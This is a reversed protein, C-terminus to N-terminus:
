LGLTLYRPRRHPMYGAQRWREVLSTSFGNCFHHISIQAKKLALRPSRSDACVWLEHAEHDLGLKEITKCIECKM